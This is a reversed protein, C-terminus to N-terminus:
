TSYSLMLSALRIWFSITPAPGSENSGIASRRCSCMCSSSVFSIRDLAIEPQFTESFTVNSFFRVSSSPSSNPYLTPTERDSPPRALPMEQRKQRSVRTAPTSSNPPRPVDCFKPTTIWPVPVETADASPATVIVPTAPFPSSWYLMPTM